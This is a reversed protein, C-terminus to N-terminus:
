ICRRDRTRIGRGEGDVVVDAGGRVVPFARNEPAGDTARIRNLETCIKANFERSDQLKRNSKSLLCLQLLRDHSRMLRM